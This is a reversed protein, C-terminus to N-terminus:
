SNSPRQKLEPELKEAATAVSKAIESMPKPGSKSPTPSPTTQKAFDSEDEGNAYDLAEQLTPFYTRWQQGFYDHRYLNFIRIVYREPNPTGDETLPQNIYLYLYDRGDTRCVARESWNNVDLKEVVNAPDIGHSPDHAPIIFHRRCLM